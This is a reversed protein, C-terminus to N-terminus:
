EAESRFSKNLFNQLEKVSDYDRDDGKEFRDIHLNELCKKGEPTKHITLFLNRLKERTERDMMPHIVVPPIGYPPSKEIVKVNSTMDPNKIKIFEYILSDVAAGDALGSAVARISNDHSHTFFTKSFFSEPTENKKALYYTPVQCGTNSMPDTFAFVKKRLDEMSEIGSDRAAIFYSYYVKKGNCVPVVLLELGFSRSGSVYPGSCVFAFDLARNKIMENVESYTKKQIFVIERGMQRGILNLLDIYYKYTFKPSIMAAVAVKLPPRTVEEPTDEKSVVDNFDVIIPKKQPSDNQDDAQWKASPLIILLLFFIYFNVTVVKLRTSHYM